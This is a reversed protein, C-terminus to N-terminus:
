DSTPPEEADNSELERLNKKVDRLSISGELSRAFSNVFANRLVSVLTEFIGAEPDKITGSLPIRAAIQDTDDDEVIESALEVIGEWLKHLPNKADEEASFMKVNRMIPKAYGTFQGDAAALETYLEFDGKEADANIYKRLWPNVKPLQVNRLTLNVDFTPQRALPNARGDIKASGSGLLTATASFGAFTDGSSHGVNTMNTIQGNVGTAELADQTGIGPARFTVRGDYARVTNFRFPFAKELQEQWNVETGLQSERRTEAQVLNIQPRTLVCAAVLSGRLLSRWEVGFDIQQGSFFPTPSEVGTKVIEVGQVRYAGRWLSLDVDAVRGDYSELAQLRENVLDEVVHPLAARAAILAAALFVLVWVWWFRRQLIRTRAM